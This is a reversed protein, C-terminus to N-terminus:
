NNRSRFHELTRVKSREFTGHGSPRSATWSQVEQNGRVEQCRSDLKEDVRIKKPPAFIQSIIAWTLAILETWFDDFDSSDERNKPRKFIQMPQKFIQLTEFTM